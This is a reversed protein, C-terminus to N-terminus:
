ADNGGPGEVQAHLASELRHQLTSSVTDLSWLEGRLSDAQIVLPAREADSSIAALAKKIREFIRRIQAQEDLVAHLRGVWEGIRTWDGSELEESLLFRGPPVLQANMVGGIAKILFSRSLVSTATYKEDIDSGPESFDGPWNFCRRFIQGLREIQSGELERRGSPSSPSSWPDDQPASDVLEQLFKLFNLATLPKSVKRGDALHVEDGQWRGVADHWSSDRALMVGAVHGSLIIWSPSRGPDTRLVRNLVDRETPREEDAEPRADLEEGAAVVMQAVKSIEEGPALKKRARNLFVAMGIDDVAKQDLYIKIPVLIAGEDGRERGPRYAEIGRQARSRPPEKEIAMIDSINVDPDSDIDGKARAFLADRLPHDLGLLAHYRHRGDLLFVRREETQDDPDSLTGVLPHILGYAGIQEMLADRHDAKPRRPNYHLARHIDDICDMPLTAFIYKADRTTGDPYCLLDHVVVQKGADYAAEAHHPVVRPIRLHLTDEAVVRLSAIGLQFSQHSPPCYGPEAAACETGPAGRFYACAAFCFCEWPEVKEEGAPIHSQDLLARAPM